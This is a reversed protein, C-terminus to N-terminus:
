ASEKLGYVTLTGSINSSATITFGDFSTLSQHVVSYTGLQLSTDEANRQRFNITNSYRAENPQTFHTLAINPFDPTGIFFGGQGATAILGRTAAAPGNNANLVQREYNTTTDDSGGSRFLVSTMVDGASTGDSLLAIYGRYDSTFVNDVSVSAAATFPVSAIKVWSM